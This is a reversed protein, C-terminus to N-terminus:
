LTYGYRIPNHHARKPYRSIHPLQDNEITSSQVSKIAEYVVNQREDPVKIKPHIRKVDRINRELIRGNRGQIQLFRGKSKVLTVIFPGDYRAKYVSKQIPFLRVMVQDGIKIKNDSANENCKVNNVEVLKEILKASPLFKSTSSAGPFFKTSRGFLLESPSCFIPSSYSHRLVMQVHSLSHLWNENREQFTCYIMDKLSRFLREVMGNSQPHFPATHTKRIQFCKCLNEMEKSNLNPAKDSHIVSPPGFVCIWNRYLSECIEESTTYKLPVLTVYRTFCDIIGLIYRYGKHEPLPGVIDIFIKELPLEAHLSGKESTIQKVSKRKLCIECSSCVMKCDKKMGEWEFENELHYILKKSGIHCLQDHLKKVLLKGASSSITKAHKTQDKVAQNLKANISKQMFNVKPGNIECQRCDTTHELRSLVDANIHLIGPRHQIEFNYQSLESIWAYYQSSSPNRWSMLWTLSKHDTRLIFKRGTLYHRFLRVYHVVALLEKRTACYKTEAKSLRNSAYSIVKEGNQTKQSLVAGISFQSADTDLIFCDNKNPCSLVPSSSLEIKLKEFSENMEANWLVKHNRKEKCRSVVKELPEAISSFNKIFKRYYSAFGMFSTLERMLAPKAWNRIVNTKEPDTAIGKNTIIHGLFKVQNQAFHCKKPSLKIGAKLLKSLVLELRENHQELTEAFVIIDDLYILCIKNNETNLISQVVGQFTCPANCLGFPMRLFEFHGESCSFATKAISSSDMKVQYYGKQMDLTSFFNCGGLKDFLEGTDPFYFSQKVTLQNLKRYDVCLRISNDKKPVVVIPSNFPSQSPQIINKKLLDEICDRVKDEYAWPIRRNAISVVANNDKLQIKHVADNILGVEGGDCAFVDSFKKLM